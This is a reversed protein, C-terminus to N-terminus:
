RDRNSPRNMDEPVLHPREGVTLDNKKSSEAACATIAMSFARSKAPLALRQDASRSM